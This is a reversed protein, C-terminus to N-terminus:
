LPKTIIDGSERVFKSFVVKKELNLSVNTIIIEAGPFATGSVKIHAKVNEALEKQLIFVAEKDAVINEKKETAVTILQVFYDRQQQTLKVGKSIKEKTTALIPQISDLVKEDEKIKAQLDILKEKGVQDVGVEIVTHAGMSSGINKASVSIMASVKGGTIFGKNSQVNVETKAVITSHLIAEAEVFGGATVRSNEIFKAVINGGAILVGKNMGNMGRAIVINGGAEVHSGEVVGLIQIDGKAKVVFNSKVNGRVIVSGDFDVNGTANDVNEVEYVNSVCVKGDQLYVHGNVKSFLELKDESEELNKDYSFKVKKVEAPKFRENVVNFGPEGLIAPHHIALLLGEQCPNMTNLNFFDVSGDENLTPRVKIETNFLYEIFGNQGQKIARGKAVIIDTCYNGERAQMFRDIQGIDFGIKIGKAKMLVLINDLSLLKGENSPPYFRGIAQMKEEDIVITMTEDQPTMIEHKLSLIVKEESVTFNQKLDVLDFIINNSLLYSTIEGMEINTGGNTPPFVVLSWVKDNRVLQFYGNM